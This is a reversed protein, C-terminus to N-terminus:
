KLNMVTMGGTPPSIYKERAPQNSSRLSRSACEDSSEFNLAVDLSSITFSVKLLAEVDWVLYLSFSNLLHGFETSEPLRASSAEDFAATLSERYIM